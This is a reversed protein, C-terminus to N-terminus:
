QEKQPPDVSPPLPLPRWHTPPASTAKSDWHWDQQEDDWYGRNVGYDDPVWLLINEDKPATEIPQWGDEERRLAPPVPSASLAALALDLAEWRGSHCSQYEQLEKIAESPTMATREGSTPTATM